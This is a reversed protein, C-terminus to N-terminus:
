KYLPKKKNFKYNKIFSIVSFMIIVAIFGLSTVFSLTQMSKTMGGNVMILTHQLSLVSVITGIINIEKFLISTLNKSKKSRKYNIISMVIKYTTYTAMVIAPIIGYKVEKPQTVMLIIPAILCLDIVFVIVSSIKYNKKRVRNKDDESQNKIRKEVILSATKIWILLLYYISISIAFADAFRIGLYANYLAFSITILLSYITTIPEKFLFHNRINNIKDKIKM